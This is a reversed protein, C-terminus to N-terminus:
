ELAPANSYATKLKGELKSFVKARPLKFSGEVEVLTSLKYSFVREEYPKLRPLRWVLQLGKEMSKVSPKPGIFGELRFIMPVDDRLIVGRLEKGTANKLELAVTIELGERRKKVRIIKKKLGVIRTEVLLFYLALTVIILLIVLPLFNVEYRIVATEGPSLRAIKWVVKGDSRGVVEGAINEFFASGFGLDKVIEVDSAEENGVNRVAIEVLEGIIKPKRRVHEEVIAMRKVEFCGLKESVKREEYTTKAEICYVGAVALEPLKFEFSLVQKEGPHLTFNSEMEELVEAGHVLSVKLKGSFALVGPNSITVRSAIDGKPRYEGSIKVEEVIAYAKRLVTVLVSASATENTERSVVLFSLKYTGPVADYSPEVWLTAKATQNARVLGFSEFTMWPKLGKIYVLPWDDVSSTLWMTLNASEGVYVQLTTPEVALTLAHATTVLLLFSLALYSIRTM